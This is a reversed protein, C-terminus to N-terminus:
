AIAGIKLVYAGYAFGAALTRSLLQVVVFPLVLRSAKITKDTLAWKYFFWALVFASVLLALGSLAIVTITHQAYKGTSTDQYLWDDQTAALALICLLAVVGFTFHGLLIILRHNDLKFLLKLLFSELTSVIALYVIGILAEQVLLPMMGVLM